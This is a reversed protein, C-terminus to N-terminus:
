PANIILWIAQGSNDLFAGAVDAVPLQRVLRPYLINFNKETDETVGGHGGHYIGKTRDQTTSGITDNM